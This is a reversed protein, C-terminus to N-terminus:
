GYGHCSCRLDQRLPEQMRKGPHQRMEGECYSHSPAGTRIQLRSLDELFDCIYIFSNSSVERKGKPLIEWRIQQCYLCSATFTNLGYSDDSHTCCTDLERSQQLKCMKERQQQLGPGCCGWHVGANLQGAVWSGRKQAPVLLSCCWRSPSQSFVLGVKGGGSCGPFTM